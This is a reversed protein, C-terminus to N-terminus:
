AATAHTHHMTHYKGPSKMLHASQQISLSSPKRSVAAHCFFLCRGSNLLSPSSAVTAAMTPPEWPLGSPRTDNDLAGALASSRLDADTTAMVRLELVPTARTDASGLFFRWIARLESM